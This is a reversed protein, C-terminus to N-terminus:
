SRRTPSLEWADADPITAFLAPFGARLTSEVSPELEGALCDLPLAENDRESRHEGVLFVVPPRTMWEVFHTAVRQTLEATAHTFPADALFVIHSPKLQRGWLRDCGRQLVCLRSLGGYQNPDLRSGTMTGASRREFPDVVDGIVQAKEHLRELHVHLLLRATRHQRCPLRTHEGIGRSNTVFFVVLQRISQPLRFSPAPRM